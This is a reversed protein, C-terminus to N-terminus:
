SPEQADRLDAIQNPDQSRALKWEIRWISLTNRQLAETLAVSTRLAEDFRREGEIHTAKVDEYELDNTRIQEILGERIHRLNRLADNSDIHTADDHTM